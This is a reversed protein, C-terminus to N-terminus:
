FIIKQERMNEIAYEQLKDYGGVYEAFIKNWLAEQQHYSFRADLGQYAAVFGMAVDEMDFSVLEKHNNKSAFYGAVYDLEDWFELGSGKNGNGFRVIDEEGKRWHLAEPNVRPVFLRRDNPDLKWLYRQIILWEANKIKNEIKPVDGRLLAIFQKNFDKERSAREFLKSYFHVEHLYHLLLAFDRLFKGPETQAIPNLFVIGFEKLHSVNHHKKAVFKIAIETWQKGLVRVEIERYEFDDPTFKSYAVDFTKHMWEDSEIFRLASFVERVDEKVLMEDVNKYNLFKMAAEPPRERLIKEAFERKLFFGGDETGMKHAANAVVEFDFNDRSIGLYKYLEAEHMNVRQFLGNFVDEAMATADLNMEQLRKKILGDVESEVRALVGSNGTTVSMRKDLKDLLSQEVNLIENLKLQKYM